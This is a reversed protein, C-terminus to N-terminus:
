ILMEAMTEVVGRVLPLAAALALVTGATEVFSADRGEGASRCVESTLRTVVSLVVTKLVPEVVGRDLGALLALEEMLRATERLGDWAALLIWVGAALSLLLALEPAGRRLVAGCLAATVAVAAAKGMLEVPEMVASIPDQGSHVPRGIERVVMMLVVVLGALTTMMAQEDRGARSLVQNLVAVLIGIAAIKFILDVDM